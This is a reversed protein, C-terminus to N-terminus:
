NYHFHYTKNEKTEYKQQFSDNKNNNETHLLTLLYIKRNQQMRIQWVLCYNCTRKLTREKEKKM